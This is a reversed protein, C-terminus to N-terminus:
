QASLSFPSHIIRNATDVEFPLISSKWTVAGVDCYELAFGTRSIMAPLKRGPPPLAPFAEDFPQAGTSLLLMSAALALRAEGASLWFTFASSSAQEAPAMPGSSHAVLSASSVFFAFEEPEDAASGRICARSLAQLAPTKV